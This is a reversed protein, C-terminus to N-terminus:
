LVKRSCFNHHFTLSESFSFRRTILVLVGTAQINHRGRAGAKVALLALPDTTIYVTLSRGPGGGRGAAMPLRCSRATPRHHFVSRRSYSGRGQETREPGWSPLHGPVARAGPESSGRDRKLPLLECSGVQLPLARVRVGAPCWSGALGGARQGTPVTVHLPLRRPSGGELRRLVSTRADAPPCARAERSPPTAGGGRPRTEGFVVYSVPM